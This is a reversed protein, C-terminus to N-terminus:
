GLTKRYATGLRHHVFKLDGNKGQVSESHGLFLSGGPKLARVLKGVVKQQEEPDFYILVNRCFV